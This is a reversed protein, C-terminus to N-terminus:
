RRDERLDWVITFGCLCLVSAALITTRITRNRM